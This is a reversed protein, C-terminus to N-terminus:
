RSAAPVARHHLDPNEAPWAGPVAAAAKSWPDGSRCRPCAGVAAMSDRGSVLDSCSSLAYFWPSFAPRYSSGAGGAGESLMPTLNKELLFIKLVEELRQHQTAALHCSASGADVWVCWVNRCSRISRGTVVRRGDHGRAGPRSTRKHFRLIIETKVGISFM